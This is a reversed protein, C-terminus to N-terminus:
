SFYGWITIVIAGALVATLLRKGSSEPLLPICIIIVMVALPIVIGALWAPLFKLTQQIGLFIWPAKIIESPLGSLEAPGEVPAEIFTSLLFIMVLAAVATLMEHYVLESASNTKKIKIGNEM